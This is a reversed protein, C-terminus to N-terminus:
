EKPSRKQASDKRATRACKAPPAKARVTGGLAARLRDVENSRRDADVAPLADFVDATIGELCREAPSFPEVGDVRQGDKSRSTRRVFRHGAPAM